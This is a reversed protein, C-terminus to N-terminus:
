FTNQKTGKEGKMPNVHQPTSVDVSSQVVEWTSGLLHTMGAHCLNLALLAASFAGLTGAQYWGWTDQASSCNGARCCSCPCIVNCLCVGRYSDQKCETARIIRNCLLIDNRRAATSFLCLNHASTEPNNPDPDEALFSAAFSKGQCSTYGLNLFSGDAYLQQFHHFKTCRRVGCLRSCHGNKKTLNM